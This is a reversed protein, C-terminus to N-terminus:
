RALVPHREENLRAYDSLTRMEFERVAPLDNVLFREGTRLTEKAMVTSARSLDILDVDLGLESSLENALQFLRVPDLPSQPLVALDLDSAPHQRATGYSGFVYIAKPALARTHRLLADRISAPLRM